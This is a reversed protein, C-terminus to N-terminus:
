RRGVDKNWLTYLKDLIDTPVIGVPVLEVDKPHYPHDMTVPGRMNNYVLQQNVPGLVWDLYLATTYPRSTNKSVAFGEAYSLLPIKYNIAFPAKQPNKKNMDIAGALSLNASVAHDGAMMLLMRTTNGPIMIPKSEGICKLLKDVKDWDGGYLNYIGALMRTQAPEYSVQGYFRPACLDEWSKPEEGEKVVKPNYSIGIDNLHSLVWRHEPDAFPRYKPLVANEAPTPYIAELNMNIVESIESIAGSTVDSEYRGVRAEAIFKEGVSQSVGLDWTVKITPYDKSFADMMAQGPGSRFSPRLLAPSEKGAGEFIRKQREAPDLKFLEAYLKDVASMEQATAPPPMSVAALILVATAARLASTHGRM